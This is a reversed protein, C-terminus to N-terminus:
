FKMASDMSDVFSDSDAYLQLAYSYDIAKYLGVVQKQEILVDVVIKNRQSKTIVWNPHKQKFLEYEHKMLNLLEFKTLQKPNTKSSYANVNENSTATPEPTHQKKRQVWKSRWNNCDRHTLNKLFVPALEGKSMYTIYSEDPNQYDKHEWSWLKNGKLATDILKRFENKLQEETKYVCDIMIMHLHTTNVEEDAEHEYVAMKSCKSAWVAIVGSMDHFPLSVRPAYNRM